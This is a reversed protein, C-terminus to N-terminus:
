AFSLHSEQVSSKEEHLDRYWHLKLNIGGRMTETNHEPFYKYIRQFWKALQFWQALMFETEGVGLNEKPIMCIM